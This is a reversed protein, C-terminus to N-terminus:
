FYQTQVTRVYLRRKKMHFLGKEKGSITKVLIRSPFFIGYVFGLLVVINKIIPTIKIRLFYTYYPYITRIKDTYPIPVDYILGHVM